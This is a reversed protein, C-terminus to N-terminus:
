SGPGGRSGNRRGLAQANCYGCLGTKNPRGHYLLPDNCEKCRPGDPEPTETLTWWGSGISRFREDLSLIHGTNLLPFEGPVEIGSAKLKRYIVSRHMPRTAQLLRVVGAGIVPNPRGQTSVRRPPTHPLAESDEGSYAQWGDYICAAGDANMRIGSSEGCHKCVILTATTM